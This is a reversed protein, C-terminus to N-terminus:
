AASEEAAKLWLPEPTKRDQELVVTTGGPGTLLYLRDICSQMLFMGHGFGATTYGRELARHILDEAIGPGQDMVWVQIVGADTDGHVRALGGGGYKAANMTAEHTATLFDAVREKSFTLTEAVTEVQKRVVRLAAESLPIPDSQPPLPAPLESEAFCLRLRGETFGFLMERLFRRQRVSAEREATVDTNTGCWLVVNGADDRTPNARSLFWRFAGDAGKLPFTDEWPEGSALHQRFKQTVADLYDPHHIKQWGWGEMEELTTGSYDFWRQNYWFIRGTEDAMWALQAMNDALARFRAEGARLADEARRSEAFLRANDVAVAARRALEEALDITEDNLARGSGVPEPGMGITLAGLIRGRATLPLCLAARVGIQKLLRAHEADIAGRDIAEPPIEPLLLREGTQIVTFLSQSGQHAGPPYRMQMERMVAEREPITHAVALRVLEGQEDLLDVEAWDAIEPVCLRVLAELRTPYDLSEGLLASARALFALRTSAAQAENRARESRELLLARDLALACQRSLETLVEQDVASFPRETPFSFHLAGFVHSRAVLPLSASAKITHLPGREFMAPYRHAFDARDTFFLPTGIRVADSLPLPDTLPFRGWADMVDRAYGLSGAVELSQEDESLLAVLGAEAGLVSVGREVVTGV